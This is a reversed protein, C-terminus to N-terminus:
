DWLGGNIEDIQLTIYKVSHRYEEITADIDAGEIIIAKM